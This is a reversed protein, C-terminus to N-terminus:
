GVLTTLVATVNTRDAASLRGIRKSILPAEATFLIPKLLSPAILGASQWDNLLVEGFRLPTRVQSTIPMLIVDPRQQQYTASSVVLAPRRKQGQQNTFPFNVLVIDGCAWESGTTPPM